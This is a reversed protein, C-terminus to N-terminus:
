YRVFKKYKYPGDIEPNIGSRPIAFTTFINECLIQIPTNFTAGLFKEFNDCNKDKSHRVQFSRLILGNVNTRRLKLNLLLPVQIYM